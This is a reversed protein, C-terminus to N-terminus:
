DAFDFILKPVFDEDIVYIGGVKLLGGITWKCEKKGGLNHRSACNLYALNPDVGAEKFQRMTQVNGCAPCKFKWDLLDDGYKVHGIFKWDNITFVDRGSVDPQKCEQYYNLWWYDRNAEWAALVAERDTKCAKAYMDARDLVWKLHHKLEEESRWHKELDHEFAAQLSAIGKKIESM